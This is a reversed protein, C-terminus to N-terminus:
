FLFGSNNDITDINNTIFNRILNTEQFNYKKIFDRLKRNDFKIKLDEISRFLNLNCNLKILSKSLHFLEINNKILNYQRNKLNTKELYNEVTNYNKIIEKATKEGIGAVGPINDSTDGTLSLYEIFYESDFGFDQYFTEKTIIKKHTLNYIQTTENILQMLDKDRSAILIELDESSFRKSLSAIIDDAEYNSLSFQKINLAEILEEFIAFQPIMEEPVKKRNKKYESEVETIELNEELEFFILLIDRIELKQVNFTKKFKIISEESISLIIILEELSINNNRIRLELEKNIKDNINYLELLKNISQKNSFELFLDDRFTKGGTDLAFVIYNPQFKNIISLTTNLAGYIANIPINNFRLDEKVGYFSQFLISYGDIICFSNKKDKNM